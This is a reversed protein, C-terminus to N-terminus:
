LLNVKKLVTALLPVFLEPTPRLGSTAVCLVGCPALTVCKLEERWNRVAM